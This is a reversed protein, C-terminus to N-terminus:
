ALTWGKSTIQAKQADTLKNKVNPHFTVVKGSVGSKLANIINQVSANSLNASQQFSFTDGLTGGFSIDQLSNTSAFGTNGIQQSGDDKLIVKEVSVLKTASNLLYGVYTASRTDIVGLKTILSNAFPQVFQSCRSFDMNVKSLDTLQSSEFMRYVNTPYIKYKPKFLNGQAWGGGGFALSYDQKNGNEQYADWFADYLVKGKVAEGIQAILDAQADADDNVASLNSAMADLGLKGTTNSLERVEDAIATMKENVM